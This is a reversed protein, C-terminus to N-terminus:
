RYLRKRRKEFGLLLLGAASIGALYGAFHGADGTKPAEKPKPAPTRVDTMVVTQVKATDKVIFEVPKAKEYGEPAKIETLVYAKGVALRELRHPTGDTTWEDILAGSEKETVRLVAGKLDKGTSDDTKRIDVRTIDDEMRIKQLEATARAVFSVAEATAYGLPAREEILLYERGPVLLRLKHPADTSIWSDVVEGTQKDVVKMRAGPLEKGNTLDVKSFEFSTGDNSVEVSETQGDREIRIPSGKGDAIYGEVPRVETLYYDGLELNEIRLHGTKDTLYSGVLVDKGDVRAYLAFEAGELPIERSASDYKFVTVSGRILKNEIPTVITEEKSETPTSYAFEVAVSQDSLLYAEGTSLERIEYSGALVTEFSGRLKEDLGSVGLLTGAPIMVGNESIDETNYLGFATSAPATKEHDFWKSDEFAKAFLFTLSERLNRISKSSTVVRVSSAEPTLAFEHAEESLLYGEATKTERLEYLGLPLEATTATGKEDTTLRQVEEGAKYHVIGDATRIDEKARLVFTVGALPREEFVPATVEYAKGGAERKEVRTGVLAEGHKEIEIVGKQPINPVEKVLTRTTVETVQGNIEIRLRGGEPDLYYGSHDPLLVEELWYEGYPLEKPFEAVGQENTEFVESGDFSIAQESDEGAYLKFRVGSIPIKLGSEADVKQLRLRTRIAENTYHYEAMEFDERIEITQDAIAKTGEPANVQRLTYTGIPLLKSAAYGNEGTMLRDTVKGEADLLEFAIGEEPVTREVTEGTQPDLLVERRKELLMYGFKAKDHVSIAEERESAVLEPMEVTRSIGHKKLTERYLEVQKSWALRAGSIDESLAVVRASGPAEPDWVVQIRRAVPNVALGEPAKTEVLDYIGPYLPGSVAEGNEDTILECAVEGKKPAGEPLSADAEVVVLQYAAGKLSLGTSTIDRKKITMVATTYEDVMEVRQIEGTSEVTFEVPTAVNFGVPALDETLIYTKGPILGTIRHPKDGSIWEDVVREPNEKETIRLRAGPLEPGGTIATKSVDLKTPRNVMTIVQVESSGDVTFDVPEALVYGDPAKTEILRYAVGASLKDMPHPKSESVWEDVVNGTEKEVVRLSAGALLNGDEDRKEIGTRTIFDVMRVDLVEASNKVEFYVPDSKSYGAPPAAEVLKYRMGVNLRKIVRPQDTTTWREVLKGSEAEYLELEAGPLPKGDEDTKRISTTTPFNKMELKQIYGNGAVTFPIREAQAYGDPAKTEELYYTGGVYLREIRHASEGSTWESLARGYEDVVRLRAGALAKGTEGDKKEVHVRTIINPIEIRQIENDARTMFYYPNSDSMSSYGAPTYKEVLKYLTNAKLGPIFHETGDSIWHDALRLEENEKKANKVVEYLDFNAGKLPEKTMADIKKVSTRPQDLNVLVVNQIVGNGEVVFRLREAKQYGEPAEVEELYYVGGVILRRVTHPQETSTWEEIVGGYEDTLRLKAGALPKGGSDRKSIRIRTVINPVDITLAESDGRTTFEMATKMPSYGRPPVLEQLLYKTNPKLNRAPHEKETSVWQDVTKEPNAKEVIRLKAGALPKKTEVDTKRILTTPNPVVELRFGNDNPDVGHITAVRQNLPHGAATYFMTAGNMKKGDFAKRRLTISVTNEPKADKAASIILSNGEQKVTVGKPLEGELRFASLRGAEDKVTLTEGQRVTITRGNFSVNSKPGMVADIKEQIYKEWGLYRENLAKDTFYVAYVKNGSVTSLPAGGNNQRVRQVLTRWLFVQTFTFDLNGKNATTWGFYVGLELTAKLKADGTISRIFRDSSAPVYSVHGLGTGAVALLATPEVCFALGDDKLWPKAVRSPSKHYSGWKDHYEKTVYYPMTEYSCVGGAADSPPPSLVGGAALLLGMLLAFLRHIGRKRM